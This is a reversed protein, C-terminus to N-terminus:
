SAQDHFVLMPLCDQRAALVSLPQIRRGWLPCRGGDCQACLPPLLSDSSQILALYTEIVRLLLKVRGTVGLKHYLRELHSHVTHSSIQLREAIASETLDDFIGRVIELERGSLRLNCAIEDWARLSFM